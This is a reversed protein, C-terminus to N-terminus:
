RASQSSTSCPKDRSRAGCRKGFSAGGGRGSSWNRAPAPPKIRGGGCARLGANEDALGPLRPLLLLAQVAGKVLTFPLRLVVLAVHRLPAHFYFAGVLLAGILAVRPSQRM